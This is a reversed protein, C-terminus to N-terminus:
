TDKTYLECTFPVLKITRIRESLGFNTQRHKDVIREGPKLIYFCSIDYYLFYCLYLIIFSM